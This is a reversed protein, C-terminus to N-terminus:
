YLTQSGLRGEASIEHNNTRQLYLILCIHACRQVFIRGAADASDVGSRNNHTVRVPKLARRQEATGSEISIGRSDEGLPSPEGEQLMPAPM